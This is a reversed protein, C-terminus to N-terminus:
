RWAGFGFGAYDRAYADRAADELEADYIDALSHRPMPGSKGLAPSTLGVEAALYALGEAMRDERIVLDPSGVQAYGQLVASQTAWAADVRISTQGALNGKLFRLFSHFAARHAAVDYDPEAADAPLQVKYLRRLGQRIEPYKGTLILDTFAAHARAVPHRLM